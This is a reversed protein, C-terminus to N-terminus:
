GKNQDYLHCAVMHGKGMDKLLPILRVCPEFRRPCRPHFPCGPPPAILSPVDGELIIRKKRTGHDPTPVASLLARTYPHLPEQFIHDRTGMEVLRGLYMVAVRHSIHGVVALDHSIFIFSIGLKAQLEQLLNIIQAQISVDLSSVPEDAIIVEPEV